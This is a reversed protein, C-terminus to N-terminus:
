STEDIIEIVTNIPIIAKEIKQELFKENKLKNELTGTNFIKYREMARKYNVIETLYKDLMVLQNYTEYYKEPRKGYKTKISDVYLNLVNVKACFLQIKDQHNGQLIQRIERLLNYVEKIDVLYNSYKNIGRGATPRPIVISAPKFESVNKKVKIETPKNPKTKKGLQPLNGMYGYGSTFVSIIILLCIARLNKLILGSKYM